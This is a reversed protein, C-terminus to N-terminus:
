PYLVNGFAMRYNLMTNVFNKAVMAGVQKVETYLVFQKRLYVGNAYTFRLTLREDYKLLPAVRLGVSFPGGEGTLRLELNEFLSEKLTSKSEIYDLRNQDPDSKFYNKVDIYKARTGLGIMLNGGDTGEVLAVSGYLIPEFKDGTQNGGWRIKFKMFSIKMQLEARGETFKEGRNTGALGYFRLTFPGQKFQFGEGGATDIRLRLGERDEAKLKVEENPKVKEESFDFDHPEPNGGQIDNPGSDGGGTRKGGSLDVNPSPDENHPGPDGQLGAADRLKIPNNHVFLYLNFHDVPGIPDCSCWRGLWAAYYRAGHYYLGSEENREKGTYRYRKFAYSGFSTEGFPMYEERNIWNGDESLVMTSSGLLDGYVYKVDPTADGQFAQGARITAIRKKDDMIHLTNNECPHAGIVKQYEFLGDIYVTSETKGNKVVYKKVRQGAPDYLYHACLSPDGTGPQIKFIRMRDSHDWEFHRSTVERTLNGSSDYAYDCSQALGNGINLRRLRNTDPAMGM